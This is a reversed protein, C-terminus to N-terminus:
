HHEGLEKNVEDMSFKEPDFEEGVWELMDGHSEHKADTIAELFEAYGWIGGVDEPPCAREGEVCRPYKVKPVPESTSELVMEHKWSDGFDYEYTFRTKRGMRAVQSISIAEEDHKEMDWFADEPDLPGYSEGRVIFQHLHYDERDMVVQLVEHLEGLTMDPVQIRRWIPPNSDTLTVKFQYIAGSKDIAQRREMLAKDEIDALLNDIKDIVANLRKRDDPPAYDLSTDIEKVMKELEKRTFEVFRQNLPADEIRTKIGRPLRTAHVLSTRQKSTLNLPFKEVPHKNKRAPM